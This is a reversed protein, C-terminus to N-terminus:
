GGPVNPIAQPPFNELMCRALQGGFNELLWCISARQVEHRTVARVHTQSAHAVNSHFYTLPVYCTTPAQQSRCLPHRWGKRPLSRFITVDSRSYGETLNWRHTCSQLNWREPITTTKERFHHQNKGYANKHMQKCESANEVNENCEMRNCEECAAHYQMSMCKWANMYTANQYSANGQMWVCKWHQM